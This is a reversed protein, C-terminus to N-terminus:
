LFNPDLANNTEPDNTFTSTFTDYQTIPQDQNNFFTADQTSLSQQMKSLQDQLAKLEAENMM